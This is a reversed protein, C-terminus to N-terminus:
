DCRPAGPKPKQYDGWGSRSAEYSQYAQHATAVIDLCMEFGYKQIFVDTIKEQMELVMAMDRKQPTPKVMEDKAQRLTTIGTQKKLHDVQVTMHCLEHMALSKGGLRKKQMQELTEQLEEAVESASALQFASKMAPKLLGWKEASDIEFVTKTVDKYGKLGNHYNEDLSENYSVAVGSNLAM